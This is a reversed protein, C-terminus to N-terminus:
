ARAILRTIVGMYHTCLPPLHSVAYALFWSRPALWRALPPVLTVRKLDLRCGSFLRTIEGKGVGSVDANKPNNLLFDYWIIFGQPKLVRLMEAAIRSRIESDLVSTFMTAQLVIDFSAAGFPLDAANAQQLRVADPLIQKAKALAESRVDVGVMHEAQAGWRLFQQIWMGSGCGVDLITKEALSTIGHRSLLELAHRERDQHGFVHGLSARDYKRQRRDYAAQVRATEAELM